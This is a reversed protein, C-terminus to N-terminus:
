AAEIEGPHDGPRGEIARKLLMRAANDDQDWLLGCGTCAHFLNAADFTNVFGCGHCERTTNKAVIKVVEAVAEKVIQLLRGVAAIRAYERMGAQSPEDPGPLKALDSWNTDEIAITHYHRRLIAAFRRYIEDRKRITKTRQHDQWDHLHRDQKRWAEMILFIEEDGEFHRDKWHWIASCLRECSKWARLRAFRETVWEPLTKRSDMWVAMKERHEDFNRDRISQLSEAKRIEEVIEMPVHLTKVSGDDGVLYAVRLGDPTLRWNVDLGAVGHAANDPKEWEERELTLQLEWSEQCGIIKRMLVVWKIRTGEPPRRHLRFPVIAWIPKKHDDSGIRIWADAMPTERSRRSEPDAHPSIPRIVIRFRTDMAAIAESWDMGKQIQISISGEGEWRYFKPPAGTRAGMMGQEVRIYSGWYLGNKSFEGRAEKILEGARTSPLEIVAKVEPDAFAIKRADRLQKWLDRQNTKAASLAAREGPTASKTRRIANNKKMENILRETEATAAEARITLDAILPVAERIAMEVGERRNREIEVLRNRYRHAMVMQNTVSEANTTAKRAKYAYIRCSQSPNDFMIEMGPQLIELSKGAMVEIM